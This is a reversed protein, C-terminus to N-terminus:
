DGINLEVRNNRRGQRFNVCVTCDAKDLQHRPWENVQATTKVDPAYPTHLPDLLAHYSIHQINRLCREAPTSMQQINSTELSIVGLEM